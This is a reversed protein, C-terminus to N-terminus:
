DLQRQRYQKHLQSRQLRTKAFQSSPQELLSISLNNIKHPPPPNVEKSLLARSNNDAAHRMHSIKLYHKDLYYNNKSQRQIPSLSMLTKTNQSNGPQIQQEIISEKMSTDLLKIM